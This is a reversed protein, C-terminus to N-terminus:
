TSGRSSNLSGKRPAHLGRELWGIDDSGAEFAVLGASMDSAAGVVVEDLFAPGRAAFRNRTLTMTTGSVGYRFAGTGDGTTPDFSMPLMAVLPSSLATKLRAPDKMAFYLTRGDERPVPIDSLLGRASM